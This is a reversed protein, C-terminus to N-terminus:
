GYGQRYKNQEGLDSYNLQRCVVRADAFWFQDDCVTGWQGDICIEVIGDAADSDQFGGVLQIDGNKCNAAPTQGVSLFVMFICLVLSCPHNHANHICITAFKEDSMLICVYNIDNLMSVSLFVYIYICVYM